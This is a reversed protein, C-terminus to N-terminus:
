QFLPDFVFDGFDVCEIQNIDYKLYNRKETNIAHMILYVKKESIKISGQVMTFLNAEGATDTEKGRLIMSCPFTCDTAYFHIAPSDITGVELPTGDLKLGPINIESLKFELCRVKATGNFISYRIRAGGKGPISSTKTFTTGYEISNIPKFYLGDFAGIVMNLINKQGQDSPHVGDNSFASEYLMGQYAPIVSFGLQAASYMWIKIAKIVSIYTTSTHIGQQHGEWTWGMPCVVVNKCNEFNNSIASQFDIMGQSIDSEPANRDNYSGGVIVKVVNTKDNTTMSSALTNLMSTFTKTGDAKFGYGGIASLKVIYGNKELANKLMYAWSNEKNSLNEGAGYSDGLILVTPKNVRALAGQLLADSIIESLEGSTRMEELIKRVEKNIELKAFYDTVYKKLEEFDGQLNSFDGQMEVWEDVLKKVTEIVWTLNMEHFNTYPFKFM